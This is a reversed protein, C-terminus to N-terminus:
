PFAPGVWGDLAKWPRDLDRTLHPWDAERESAGCQPCSPFRVPPDSRGSADPVALGRWSRLLARGHSQPYELGCTQCTM